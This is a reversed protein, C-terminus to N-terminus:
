RRVRGFLGGLMSHPTPDRGGSTSGSGSRRRAMAPTREGPHSDSQRSATQSAERNLSAAAQAAVGSLVGQVRGFLGPHSQARLEAARVSSVIASLQPVISIFNPRLMPDASLCMNILRKLADPINTNELPPLLGRDAVGIAVQLPTLYLSSYPLQHNCLEVLTVGFSWVDTKTTYM